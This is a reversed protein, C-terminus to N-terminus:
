EVIPHKEFYIAQMESTGYLYESKYPICISHYDESEYISDFEEKSIDFYKIFNLINFHETGSYQKKFENFSDEGVYQIM